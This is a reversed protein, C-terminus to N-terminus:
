WRWTCPPRQSGALSGGACGFNKVLAGTFLGAFLQRPGGSESGSAFAVIKSSQDAILGVSLAVAYVLLRAM